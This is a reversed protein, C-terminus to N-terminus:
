SVTEKDLLVDLFSQGFKELKADGVGNLARMDQLTKPKCEMFEMLTADHFVMYPPINFKEALTKRADRLQDWLSADEESVNSQRKRTNAASSKVREKEVRILFNNEGKLLTRSKEKLKIAGYQQQDVFVFGQVLLQRLVSRWQNSSFEKGIGFTSLEHHNFKGTKETSRGQLIDLLHMFGFRQGTRYITSLIKQAQETADIRQPPQDCNDCCRHKEIIELPETSPIRTEGFYSLLADRRCESLECFGLLADLKNKEVRKHQEEAQSGDIFQSLQVVDDLGFIMLADASEGDRGARGTEQYYSEISKPLNLHVVYRVDPKDIGMGFAITAVMVIGDERLFREQHQKRKDSPMGAHYALATVGQEQLYAAISETRKRSLCYVIGSQNRHERVFRLLQQKANAKVEVSYQINPRDFSQVFSQHNNLALNEVIATQTEPTATATLAIRPVNPFLQKLQSLALYDKRFDHGWQSVCHAEDIAILAIEVSALASVTSPQLIREPAIYLLDITQQEIALFVDRQQSATLSSNLFAARVGNQSLAEVQDQMLAILPSIVIGVGSRLLAPIQYCLSKGGGTPMLALCDDGQLLADIIAAQNGRFATYGFTNELIELPSNVTTGKVTLPTNM